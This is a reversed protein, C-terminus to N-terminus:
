LAGHDLVLGMAYSLLDLDMEGSAAGLFDRLWIWEEQNLETGDYQQALISAICKLWTEAADQGKGSHLSFGEALRSRFAAPVVTMCRSLGASLSSLDHGGSSLRSRKLTSDLDSLMKDNSNMAHYYRVPGTEAM